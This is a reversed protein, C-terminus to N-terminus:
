LGTNSLLEEYFDRSDPVMTMTRDFMQPAFNKLPKYLISEDRVQQSPTQLSLSLFILIASIFIAGEFVGIIMGGIHNWIGEVMRKIFISYLISQVMMITVIIALFAAGTAIAVPVNLSTVLAASLAVAYKVALILGGILCVIAIVKKILGNRWGFFGFVAFAMLIGVDYNNM